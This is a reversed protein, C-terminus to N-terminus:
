ICFLKLPTGAEMKKNLRNLASFGILDEPQFDSKTKISLGDFIRIQCSNVYPKFDRMLHGPCSLNIQVHKNGSFYCINLVSAPLLKQLRYKARSSTKKKFQIWAQADEKKLFLEQTVVSDGSQAIGAISFLPPTKITVLYLDLIEM